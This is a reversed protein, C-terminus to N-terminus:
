KERKENKEEEKRRVPQPMQNLNIDAQVNILRSLPSSLAEDLPDRNISM